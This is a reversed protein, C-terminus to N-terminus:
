GRSPPSGTDYYRATSFHIGGKAPIVAWSHKNGHLHTMSKKKKKLIIDRTLGQGPEKQDKEGGAGEAAELGAGGRVRAGVDRLHGLARHRGDTIRDGSRAPPAQRRPRARRAPRRGDLDCQSIDGNIVVSCDEGIRTLFMKIEAPTANQAEDLLVFADKWSRGRMVEFPVMEIVGKELAIDSPPPAWAARSRRSSRRPGPLSSTKSRAPSSGSRVGAPCM